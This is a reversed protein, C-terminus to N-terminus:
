EAAQRLAPFLREFALGVRARCADVDSLLDALSGEGVKPVEGCVFRFFERRRPTRVAVPLAFLRENLANLTADDFVAEWAVRELGFSFIAADVPTQRRLARLAETAAIDVVGDTVIVGYTAEAYPPTVFGRRIDGLVAEVDRDLPNGYGGGGPTNITVLDGRNVQLLDIKGIREAAQGKRELIVEFPAGAGGGLVGWPSFRFREMGRALVSGGDRLVEFTVSLGVGGRWRGAGGSDPRVAYRRVIVGSGAEVSEIPNNGLNAIGSDRGDVGDAGQRAGTGGVMPEIVSVNRRGTEPDIEAFVVPVTVGGSPAKMLHPVAKLLVGNLVDNVRTAAAHRVGVAAPSIPYLISGRQTKVSMPRYLGANVPVTEDYTLIFAILRLTLWPHRKGSTPVNYAAAVQPDTGTYDLAVLGDRVTMAVRIRVPLASNVDDDLYDWFEYTGDPIRRLVSRAKEASYSQLAEQCDLFVDLGHQEIMEQVRQEGTQLAALMAKIDGANDDPTRSNSRFIAMVDRVIEGRRVLRVPPLLLGEQFLEDNSPSISSAVRGGVDTCHVFCWGYAVIRGDVFYPRIMHLDPLHTSLGESVYPHNTIIVDGHELDDFPDIAPRCDLDMYNSVGIDRPYAFFKGNLDALGTAFDATEKVYLTRGTRQLTLSMEEASAAVKNSLIELLIPDLAM